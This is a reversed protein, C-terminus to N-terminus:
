PIILGWATPQIQLYFRTSLMDDAFKIGAEALLRARVKAEDRSGEQLGASVVAIMAAGLLALALLVIIALLLAQGRRRTDGISRRSKSM